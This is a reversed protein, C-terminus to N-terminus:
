ANWKGEPMRFQGLQFGHDSTFLFYSRQLEGLETVVGVLGEVMDDVSLLAQHRARYLEDSHQQQEDTMPPQQRVLWHHDPASLNWNPTRPAAVGAFTENYWPAPQAM